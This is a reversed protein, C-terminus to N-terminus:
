YDPAAALSRRIVEDSLTLVLYYVSLMSASVPAYLTQTLKLAYHLSPDLTSGQAYQSIALDQLGNELEVIHGGPNSM